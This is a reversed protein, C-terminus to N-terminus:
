EIYKIKSIVEEFATNVSDDGYLGGCSTIILGLTEKPTERGLYFVCKKFFSKYFKNDEEKKLIMKLEESDLNLESNINEHDKGKKSSVQEQLSQIQSSNFGFFPEDVNELPPPYSLGIDKFLKYNVFKMLNTYLELFSLMIEYDIEFTLKQPYSFPVLWTIDNGSLEVNLYIGKISIFGKRFIQAVSVYM